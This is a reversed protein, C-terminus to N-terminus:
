MKKERKWMKTGISRSMPPGVRGSNGNGVPPGIVTGTCGVGQGIPSTYSDSQMEDSYKANGVKLDHVNKLIILLGRYNERFLDFHIGSRGERL